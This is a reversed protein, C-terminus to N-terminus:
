YKYYYSILMNVLYCFYLLIMEEMSFNTQSEINLDIIMFNYVNTFNNCYEIFHQINTIQQFNNYFNNSNDQFIAKPYLIQLVHNITNNTRSKDYM